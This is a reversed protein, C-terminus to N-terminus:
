VVSIDDYNRIFPMEIGFMEMVILLLNYFILSIHFKDCLNILEWLQMGMM